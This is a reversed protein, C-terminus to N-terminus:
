AQTLNLLTKMKISIHHIQFHETTIAMLHYQHVKSPDKTSQTPRVKALKAGQLQQMDLTLTELTYNCFELNEMASPPPPLPANPDPEAEEEPDFFPDPPYSAPRQPGRGRPCPPPPPPPRPAPRAPRYPAPAPSPRLTGPRAPPPRLTRGRDGLSSASLSSMSVSSPFHPAPSHGSGRIIDGESGYDLISYHRSVCARDGPLEGGSDPTTEVADPGPDAASVSRQFEFLQQSLKSELDGASAVLANLAGRGPRPSPTRRDMTDVDNISGHRTLKKQRQSEAIRGLVEGLGAGQQGGGSGEAPPRRHAQASEQSRRRSSSPLTLSHIRKLQQLPSPADANGRPLSSMHRRNGLWPLSPRPPPRPRSPPASRPRTPGRRALAAPRPPQRRPYAQANAQTNVRASAPGSDGQTGREEAREFFDLDWVTHDEYVTWDSGREPEGPRGSADDEKVEQEANVAVGHGNDEMKVFRHPFVGRRGKVQGELWGDEVTGIVRVRDGVDFDLEGPEMARFDYLALDTFNLDPRRDGFEPTLPSRLQGLLEVFGEPFVGVRDELEGRFWGPEPVGTIVILDGQRFDLEEHLQAHLSMLARAQGLAHPPLDAARALSCRESLQRSSSSLHLEKLCSSPLLGRAGWASCGRQWAANLDVAAAGSDLAVVDCVYLTDGAEPSPIPVAEVFTSPFQGTVGDKNGLLWFEDVVGLVEIVDGTFLPLEESVSPLFEFVARVVAGVEM